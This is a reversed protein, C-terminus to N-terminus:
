RVQGCHWGPLLSQVENSGRVRCAPLYSCREDPHIDAHSREWMIGCTGLGSLSDDVHFSIESEAKLAGRDM